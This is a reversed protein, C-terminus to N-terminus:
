VTVFSRNVSLDEFLAACLLTANNIVGAAV